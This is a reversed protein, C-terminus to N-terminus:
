LFMNCILMIRAIKTQPWGDRNAAFDQL